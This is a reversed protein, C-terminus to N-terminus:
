NVAERVEMLRLLGGLAPLGSALADAQPGTLADSHLPSDESDVLTLAYHEAFVESLSRVPVPLMEGLHAVISAQWKGTAAVLLASAPPQSLASEYYDISRQVQLLLTDKFGDWAQDDLTAPVGAVRRTLFLEHGRCVNIVADAASVRLVAVGYDPTPCTRWALNRMALETIDICSPELGAARVRDVLAALRQRPVATVFVKAPAGRLAASPFPFCDIVAQDAPFDLFEQIRWRVADRLDDDGVKPREILMLNYSEPALVLATRAGRVGLRSVLDRLCDDTDAATAAQAVAFRIAPTLEGVAASAAVAEGCALAVGTDSVQVGVLSRPRRRLFPLDFVRM